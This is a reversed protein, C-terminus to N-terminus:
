EKSGGADRHTIGQRLAQPAVVGGWGWEVVLINRQGVQAVSGRAARWRSELHREEVQTVIYEGPAFTETRLAGCLRFLQADSLPRLLPM